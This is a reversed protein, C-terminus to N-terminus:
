NPLLSEYNQQSEMDQSQIMPFEKIGRVQRLVLAYAEVSTNIQQLRGLAANVAEKDNSHNTLIYLCGEAEVAYQYYTTNQLGSSKSTNSSSSGYNKGFQDSDSVSGNVNAKVPGLKLDAGGSLTSTSSESTSSTDFTRNNYISSGGYRFSNDYHQNRWSQAWKAGDNRIDQQHQGFEAIFKNRDLELRGKAVQSSVWENYGQMISADLMSRERAAIARTVLIQEQKGMRGARIDEIEERIKDPTLSNLISQYKAREMSEQTEALDKKARAKNGEIESSAKAVNVAANIAGAVDPAQMTPTTLHPASAASASPGSAATGSATAGSGGSGGASSSGNFTPNLGAALKRQMVAEESNWQRTKEAEAANFERNLEAEASNFERAKEAEAANFENDERHIQIQTENTEKAIEKNAANTLETAAISGAAGAIGGVASGIGFVDLLNVRYTCKKELDHYINM